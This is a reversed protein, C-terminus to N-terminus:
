VAFINYLYLYGLLEENKKCYTKLKEIIRTAKLETEEDTKLISLIKKKTNYCANYLFNFNLEVLTVLANNNAMAYFRDVLSYDEKFAKYVDVLILTKNKVATIFTLFANILILDVLVVDEVDVEMEKMFNIDEFCFDEDQNDLRDMLSLKTIQTTEFDFDYTQKMCFLNLLYNYFQSFYFTSLMKEDFSTNALLTTAKKNNIKSTFIPVCGNHNEVYVLEVETFNLNCHLFKNGDALWVVMKYGDNLEEQTLDNVQKCNFVCQGKIEEVIDNVLSKQVYEDIVFMVKQYRAKLFILKKIEKADIGLKIEM